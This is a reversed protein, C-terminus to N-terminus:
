EGKVIRLGTPPAPGRPSLDMDLRMIADPLVVPGCDWHWIFLAKRGPSYIVGAPTFPLAAGVPSWVSGGDASIVVTTSGVSVLRKDPLEIPSVPQLDNGVQSWTSGGDTSKLLSNGNSWYITGDSAVLPPGTPEVASVQQWSAGGNTTRLIGGTESGYGSLNVVYTQANIIIPNTSFKTNAPISVGINTWNQGGDTSRYVTQSQEHGGALLTQRNPDGFDVSVFDNHSISGLRQFTTGGDTTKYVGGGNYIGSEWFVRPNLPDYTIWSPRNTITDSGTGSGLQSWTTGNSNTWLGKLAVGAIVAGPGPVASLMTLNGCESAMNALNGTANAWSVSSLLVPRAGIGISVLLLCGLARSTM